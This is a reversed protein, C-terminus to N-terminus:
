ARQVAPWTRPTLPLLLFLMAATQANVHVVDFAGALLLGVLAWAPALDYPNARLGPDAPRRAAFAGRLAFFALACALALGVLGTTAALHLPANHAHPHILGALEPRDRQELTTSAWQQFGGAGVGRLPRERVAELAMRGMLVRAGTFSDYQEDILAARSERYGEAFRRSLSDGAVIWLAVGVVLALGGLALMPRVLRARPRVRWAAWALALIVLAASALWAGRTGTLVVGIATLSAGGLGLWRMKGSGTIAAPLHLGLVATLLSGAVVPHWWISSRDPEPRIVLWGVDLQKAIVEVIQVLNALAFAVCVAGILWRRADLVPALFFPLWAWRWAGMEEAGNAPDPSWTLSLAQWAVLAILFTMPPQRLTHAGMIWWTRPLRLLGMVWLPIGALDVISVPGSLLVCFWLAFALQLWWGRLTARHEHQLAHRTAVEAPPLWLRLGTRAQVDSPPHDVSV